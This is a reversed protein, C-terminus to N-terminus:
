YIEFPRGHLAMLAQASVPASFLFGQGLRIGAQGLMKAQYPTEIGEAIISLNNQVTLSGLTDLWAPTAADPTIQHILTKDLKICHLQCRSFIALNHGSLLVDDLAIQCGAYTNANLADIGLQDPIGRETVELIIRGAMGLLDNRFLAYAIGGRGFVSPPINICLHQGPHALLWSRLEAAICDIIRYTLLGGLPSKDLTEIFREPQWVSDGRRWRVLAEAGFLGGDALSVVPQYELFFEGALLGRYAEDLTFANEAIGQQDDAQM